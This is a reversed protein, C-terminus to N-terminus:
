PSRGCAGFRPRSMVPSCSFAQRKKRFPLKNTLIENFVIAQRQLLWDLELDRHAFIGLFHNKVKSSSARLGFSNTEMALSSASPRGGM